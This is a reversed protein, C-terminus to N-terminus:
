FVDAFVLILGISNHYLYADSLLSSFQSSVKGSLPVEKFAISAGWISSNFPDPCSIFQCVVFQVKQFLPSFSSFLFVVPFM